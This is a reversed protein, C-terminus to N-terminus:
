VTEGFLKEFLQQAREKGADTVIVSEAKSKADALFGKARVRDLANWDHNKWARTRGRIM